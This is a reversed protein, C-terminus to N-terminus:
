ITCMHLTVFVMDLWIGVSQKGLFAFLFRFRNTWRSRCLTETTDFHTLTFKNYIIHAHVGWSHSYCEIDDSLHWQIQNMKEIQLDYVCVCFCICTRNSFMHSSNSEVQQMISFIDMCPAEKSELINEHRLNALSFTGIYQYIRSFVM